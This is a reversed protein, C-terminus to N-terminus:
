GYLEEIDIGNENMIEQIRQRFEFTGITEKDQYKYLERLEQDIKWLCNLANSALMMQKAEISDETEFIYKM